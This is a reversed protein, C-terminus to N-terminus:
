ERLARDWNKILPEFIFYLISRKKTTIYVTVPMGPSLYVNEEHLKKGDVEVYCLYYPLMGANTREELRDASIYTVKGPIHPILRADFADLQVNAEQGLFVETIKNVPVHTEVVLPKDQPVIDMLPEGARIVGGRSHVKLDVVRGAVPALVKLRNKVDLTSRLKEELQSVENQLKSSGNSAEEVFRNKADEIRLSKRLM